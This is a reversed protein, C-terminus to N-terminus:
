EEGEKVATASGYPGAERKGTTRDIIDRAVHGLMLLLQRHPECGDGKQAIQRLDSLSIVICLEIDADFTDLGWRAKM